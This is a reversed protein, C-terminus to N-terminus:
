IVNKRRVLVLIGACLLALAPVAVLLVTVWTSTATTVSVIKSVAFPKFTLNEPVSENGMYKMVSYITQTNGFVTSQLAAESGFYTSACVILQSNIGNSNEQETLSMLTFGDSGARAVARGGAWAEASSHSVILPSFIRNKNIDSIYNGDGDSAYGDAATICASNGFLNNRDVNLLLRAGRGSSAKQALITYGDVTTSHASDKINYCAESGDESSSHMFKVGWESMLGEFNEHSGAAFTDASVFVMYKGGGDMYKRIKEVESVASVSDSSTFDQTPNYTILLDCDDPIDFNLLDLYTYNYGGDAILSLFSSDNLTEGHNITLYCVRSKERVTRVLGSALRREGNYAIPTSSDSSDFVYFDSLKMVNHRDGCVFVVDTSATVGYKRALSPNEWVDIFEIEIYDPFSNSIEVASDLVLRQIMESEINEKDDWFIFAAKSNNGESRQRDMESIVYQRLYDRCDGTLAYTFNKNMDIYIKYRQCLSSFIVNVIVIAAVVLIALVVTVGGYQIQRKKAIRRM